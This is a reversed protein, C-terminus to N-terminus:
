PLLRCPDARLQAARAFARFLLRRWVLPVAWQLGFWRCVREGFAALQAPSSLSALPPATREAAVRCVRSDRPRPCNRSDRCQPFRCHQASRLKPLDADFQRLSKGSCCCVGDALQNADYGFGGGGDDGCDDDDAGFGCGRRRQSLRGRLRCRPERRSLGYVDGCGRGGCGGGDGGVARRVDAACGSRDHILSPDM